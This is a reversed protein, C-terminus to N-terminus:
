NLYPNDYSINYLHDLERGILVHHKDIITDCADSMINIYSRYMHLKARAEAIRQGVKENFVDNPDCVATGFSHQINNNVPNLWKIKCVTTWCRNKKIYYEVKLIPINYITKAKM